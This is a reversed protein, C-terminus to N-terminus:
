AAPRLRVRLARAAAVPPRRGARRAPVLGVLIDPARLRRDGRGSRTELFTADSDDDKGRLILGGVTNNYSSSRIRFTRGRSIRRGTAAGARAYGRRGPPNRAVQM